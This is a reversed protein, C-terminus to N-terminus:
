RRSSSQKRHGGNRLEGTMQHETGEKVVQRFAVAAVLDGRVPGLAFEVVIDNQPQGLSDASLEGTAHENDGGVAVAAHLLHEAKGLDGVPEGEPMTSAGGNGVEEALQRRNELVHCG